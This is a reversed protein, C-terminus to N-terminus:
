PMDMHTWTEINKFCRVCRSSSYLEPNRKQLIDMCPFIELFNKIRYGLADNEKDSINIKYERMINDYSRKWDILVEKINIRYTRNMNLSLWDAKSQLSHFRKM